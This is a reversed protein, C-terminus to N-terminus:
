KYAEANTDALLSTILPLIPVTWEFAPQNRLLSLKILLKRARPTTATARVFSTAPM